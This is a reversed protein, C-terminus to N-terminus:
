RKRRPPRSPAVYRVGQPLDATTMPREARQLQQRARQEEPHNEPLRGPRM